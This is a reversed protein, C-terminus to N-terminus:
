TNLCRKGWTGKKLIKLIETKSNINLLAERTRRENIIRSVYALIKLYRPSETTPVVILFVFNVCEGDISEFDIGKKLLAFKVIVKKVLNSRAHPIAIGKGIATTGLKERELIAEFIRGKNRINLKKVM